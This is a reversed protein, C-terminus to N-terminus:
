LIIIDGVKVSVELGPKRGAMKFIPKGTKRGILGSSHNLTFIARIKRRM